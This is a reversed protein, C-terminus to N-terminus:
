FPQYADGATDVDMIPMRHLPALDHEEVTCKWGSGKKRLGETAPPGPAVPAPSTHWRSSTLALALVFTLGHPHDELRERGCRTPRHLGKGRVLRGEEGRRDEGRREAGSTTGTPDITLSHLSRRGGITCLTSLLAREPSIPPRSDAQKTEVHTTSLSAVSCGADL